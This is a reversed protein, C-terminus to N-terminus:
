TSCPRRRAKMADEIFEAIDRLCGASYVTGPEPFFSYQRWRCLWKIEGLRVRADATVVAWIHTKKRAAPPILDAM